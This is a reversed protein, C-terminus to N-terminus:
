PRKLATSLRCKTSSVKLRSRRSRILKVVIIRCCYFAPIEITRLATLTLDFVCSLTSPCTKTYVTLHERLHKNIDRDNRGPVNRFPADIAIRDSYLVHVVAHRQADVAQLAETAWVDFRSRTPSLRLYTKISQICVPLAIPNLRAQHLVPAVNDRYVINM